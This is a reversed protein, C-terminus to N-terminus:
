RAACQKPMGRASQILSAAPLPPPATPLKPRCEPSSHLFPSLEGTCLPCCPAIREMPLVEFLFLLPIIWGLMLGRIRGEGGVCVCVCTYECFCCAPPNTTPDSQTPPRPIVPRFSPPSKEIQWCILSSQFVRERVTVCVRRSVCVCHWACLVRGDGRVLCRVQVSLLLFFFGVSFM